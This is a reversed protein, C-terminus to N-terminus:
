RDVNIYDELNKDQTKILKNNAEAYRKLQEDKYTNLIVSIQECVAGQGFRAAIFYKKMLENIKNELDENKLKSPDALLPNYM